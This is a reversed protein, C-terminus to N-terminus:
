GGFNFRWVLESRITQITKESRLFDGTQAGTAIVTFPLNEARYSSFRYETKWYLGPLFGLAYEYGTGIFWGSYTTAPLFLTSVQPTVTAFAATIPNMDEFRAETYGGSVYALLQPVVAWGVRGGVAWSNQHRDEAVFTAATRAWTATGRMGSWDFDGFLGIVWRDAFQYDCGAQVTGFWGRGGITIEQSQLRGGPVATFGGFDSAIDQNFMGYGGGAGLYCGTWNAAVVPAPTFPRAKVPLDAAAANGVWGIAAIASIVLKKMKVGM